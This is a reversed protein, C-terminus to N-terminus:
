SLPQRMKLFIDRTKLVKRLQMHLSEILCHRYAALHTVVPRRKQWVSAISIYPLLCALVSRSLEKRKLPARDRASHTRGGLLLQALAFMSRPASPVSTNYGVGGFWEIRWPLDDDPFEDFAYDTWNGTAARAPKPLTPLVGSRIV